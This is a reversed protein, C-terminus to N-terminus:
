SPIESRFEHAFTMPERPMPPGENIELLRNWGSQFKALFLALAESIVVQIDDDKEVELYLKPFGRNYALFNWSEFGTVYLGGHIQPLYEEPVKGALLAKVHNVPQLCKVELGSEGILGDPSAGFNNEDNTLFGIREVSIDHEFELWPIALEELLQGQETAWSGFSLLPGGTWKEALKQALYTKPMEGKRIEFKDTVLNGLESATPIGARLTLWEVSGQGVNHRIM